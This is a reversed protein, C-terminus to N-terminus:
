DFGVTKPLVPETFLTDDYEKELNEPIIVQRTTWFPFTRSTKIDDMLLLVRTKRFIPGSKIQGDNSSESITRHAM